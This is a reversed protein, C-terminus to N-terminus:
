DVLIEHFTPPNADRQEAPCFRLSLQIDWSTLLLKTLPNFVGIYRTSFYSRVMLLGNVLSTKQYLKEGQFTPWCFWFPFPTAHEMGMM